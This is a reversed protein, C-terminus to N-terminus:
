GKAAGKQLAADQDKKSLKLHEACLFRFRPGKSRNKCGPYRCRMDVKRRRKSSGGGSGKPRGPGRRAGLRHAIAEALNQVLADFATPKRLRAMSAIRGSADAHALLAFFV